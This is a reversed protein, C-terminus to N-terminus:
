GNRTLSREAPPEQAKAGVMGWLGSDAVFGLASLADTMVVYTRSPFRGRGRWNDVQQWSNAETLDRVAPAGGLAEIVEPVTKLHTSKTM